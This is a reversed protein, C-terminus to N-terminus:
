ATLPSSWSCGDSNQYTRAPDCPVCNFENTNGLMKTKKLVVWKGPSFQLIHCCQVTRVARSSNNVGVAMCRSFVESSPQGLGTRNHLQSNYKWALTLNWLFHFICIFIVLWNFIAIVIPLLTHFFFHLSTCFLATWLSSTFTQNCWVCCVGCHPTLLM